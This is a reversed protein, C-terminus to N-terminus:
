GTLSQATRKKGHRWQKGNKRNGARRMQGISFDMNLGENRRKKVIAVREVIAEWFRLIQNKQRECSCFAYTSRICVIFCSWM